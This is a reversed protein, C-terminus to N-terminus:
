GNMLTVVPNVSYGGCSRPGPQALRARGGGRPSWIGKRVRAPPLAAALVFAPAAARGQPADEGIQAQGRARLVGM